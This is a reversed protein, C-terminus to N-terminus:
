VDITEIDNMSMTNNNKDVPMCMNNYTYPLFLHLSQARPEVRIPLDTLVKKTTSVEDTGFGHFEPICRCASYIKSRSNILKTKQDLSHQLIHFHEKM